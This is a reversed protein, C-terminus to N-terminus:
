LISMLRFYMPLCANPYVHINIMYEGEHSEVNVNSQNYFPKMILYEPERLNWTQMINNSFHVLVYLVIIQNTGISLCLM